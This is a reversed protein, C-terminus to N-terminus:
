FQASSIKKCIWEVSPVEPGAVNLSRVEAIGNIRSIAWVFSGSHGQVVFRVEIVGVSGKLPTSGFIIDGSSNFAIRTKASARGAPVGSAQSCELTTWEDGATLVATTACVFLWALLSTLVNRRM